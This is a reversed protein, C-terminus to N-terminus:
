RMRGVLGLIMLLLPIAGLCIGIIGKAKSISPNRSSMSVAVIGLILAVLGTILSLFVLIAGFQIMGINFSRASTFIIVMGILLAAMTGIGTFLAATALGGGTGGSPPYPM